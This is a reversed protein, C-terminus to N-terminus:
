MRRQLYKKKLSHVANVKEKKDRRRKEKERERKKGERLWVIM